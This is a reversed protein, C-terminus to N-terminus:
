EAAPPPIASDAEAPLEAPQPVNDEVANFLPAEAAPTDSQLQIQEISDIVSAPMDRNAALYALALSNLFFGTALIATTKSLFNSSGSAGFVSTAGGGFTAGESAGKGKQLLVLTIIGFALCVHLVLLIIDM